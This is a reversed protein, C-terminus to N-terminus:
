GELTINSKENRDSAEGNEGDNYMKFSNTRNFYQVAFGSLIRGFIHKSNLHQIINVNTYDSYYSISSAFFVFLCLCLIDLPQKDSKDNWLM